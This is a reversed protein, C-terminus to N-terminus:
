NGWNIYKLINYGIRIHTNLIHLKLIEEKLVIGLNSRSSWESYTLEPQSLRSAQTVDGHPCGTPIEFM